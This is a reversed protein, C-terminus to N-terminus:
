ADVLAAMGHTRTQRALALQQTSAYRRAWVSYTRFAFNRGFLLAYVVSDFHLLHLVLVVWKGIRIQVCYDAQSSLFTGM